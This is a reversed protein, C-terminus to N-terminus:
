RETNKAEAEQTSFNCTHTVVVPKLTLTNKANLLFHWTYHCVGKIVVGSPPPDRLPLDVQDM